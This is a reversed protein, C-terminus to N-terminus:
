FCPQNKDFTGPAESSFNNGRPPKTGGVIPKVWELNEEVGVPETGGFRQGNGSSTDGIRM